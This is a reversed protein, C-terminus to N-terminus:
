VSLQALVALSYKFFFFFFFLPLRAMKYVKYGQYNFVRVIHSFMDVAATSHVNIWNYTFTMKFYFATSRILLSLFKVQTESSLSLDNRSHNLNFCVM